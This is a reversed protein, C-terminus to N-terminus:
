RTVGEGLEGEEGQVDLYIQAYTVAAINEVRVTYTGENSYQLESFTLSRRDESLIGGYMGEELASGIDGSGSVDMPDGGSASGINIGAVFFWRIDSPVVLPIDNTITFSLTTENDLLGTRNPLDTTVM